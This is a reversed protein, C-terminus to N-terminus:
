DSVRVRVGVKVVPFSNVQPWSAKWEENENGQLM